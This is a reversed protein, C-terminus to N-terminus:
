HCTIDNIQWNGGVTSSDDMVLEVDALPIQALADIVMVQARDGAQGTLVFNVYHPLEAGVCFFPDVALGTGSAAAVQADLRAIFDASLDPRDQYAGDLLPHLFVEDSRLDLYWTYAVTAVDSPSAVPVAMEPGTANVAGVTLGFGIVGLVVAVGVLWKAM